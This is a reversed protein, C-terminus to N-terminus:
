LWFLSINIILLRIMFYSLTSIVTQMYYHGDAYLLLSKFCVHM